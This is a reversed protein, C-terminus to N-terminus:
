EHSHDGAAVVIINEGFYNDKHYDVIMNKNITYINNIKGLIPLAM